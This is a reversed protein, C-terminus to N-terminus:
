CKRKNSYNQSWTETSSTEKQLGLEGVVLPCIFGAIGLSLTQPKPDTSSDWIGAEEGRVKGQGTHLDSAATPARHAITDLIQERQLLGTSTTSYREGHALGGSVRKQVVLVFLRNSTKQLFPAM